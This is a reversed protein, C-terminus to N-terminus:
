RLIAAVSGEDARRLAASTSFMYQGVMVLPFLVNWWNTYKLCITTWFM